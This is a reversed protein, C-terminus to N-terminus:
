SFESCGRALRYCLVSVSGVRRCSVLSETYKGLASGFHFPGEITSNGHVNELLVLIKAYHTRLWRHGPPPFM